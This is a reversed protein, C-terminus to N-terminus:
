LEEYKGSKIIEYYTYRNGGIQGFSYLDKTIWYLKRGDSKRKFFMPYERGKKEICGLAMLEEYLWKKGRFTNELKFTDEKDSLLYISGDSPNIMQHPYKRYNIGAM